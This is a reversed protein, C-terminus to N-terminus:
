RREESQGSAFLDLQEDCKKLALVYDRLKEPLDAGSPMHAALGRLFSLAEVYSLTRAHRVAERQFFEIDDMLANM